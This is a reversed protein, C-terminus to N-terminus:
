RTATSATSEWPLSARFTRATKQFEHGLAVSSKALREWAGQLERLNGRAHPTDMAAAEAIKYMRAKSDRVVQWFVRDLQEADALVDDLRDELRNLTQHGNSTHEGKGGTAARRITQIAKM